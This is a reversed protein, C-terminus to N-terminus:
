MLVAGQYQTAYIMLSGLWILLAILTLLNFLKFHKLLLAIMGAFSFIAALVLLTHVPPPPGPITEMASLFTIINTSASLLYRRLALTTSNLM